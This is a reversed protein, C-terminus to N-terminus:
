FPLDDDKEDFDSSPTADRKSVSQSSADGNQPQGGMMNMNFVMIETAYRKNGDSDEWSRTKIKGEVLISNGKELYKDAIEALKGRFVLNHWETETVKEGDRNTYSESTALPANVIMGGNDFHKTTPDAGLNGVLIVKNYGRM